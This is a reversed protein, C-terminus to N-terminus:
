ISKKGFIYEICVSDGSKGNSRQGRKLKDPSASIMKAINRKSNLYSKKSLFVFIM